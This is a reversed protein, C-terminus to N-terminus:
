ESHKKSGREFIDQVMKGGGNRVSKYGGARRTEIEISRVGAETRRQGGPHEYEIGNGDQSDKRKDKRNTDMKEVGLSRRRIFGRCKGARQDTADKKEIYESKSEENNGM